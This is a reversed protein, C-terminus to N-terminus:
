YIAHIGNIDGQDPSRKFTEGLTATPYMTSARDQIHGLGLIHGFEHTAVNQVDYAAVNQCGDGSGQYWPMSRNFITDSEVGGGSWTWTWTVALSGGGTSGFMLEDAGDAQPSTAGSDSAVGIRPAGVAAWANFAAQLSGAANSVGSPTTAPNFHATLPGPVRWGERSYQTGGPGPLTCSSLTRRRRRAADVSDVSAAPDGAMLVRVRILTAVGRMSSAVRTPVAHSSAARSSAAPSSAPRAYVARAKRFAPTRVPTIAAGAVGTTLLALAIAAGPIRLAGLLNRRHM